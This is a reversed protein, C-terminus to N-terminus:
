WNRVKLLLTIYRKAFITEVLRDFIVIVRGSFRKWSFLKKFVKVFTVQKQNQVFFTQCSAWVVKVHGTSCHQFTSGRPSFWLKKDNGCMIHFEKAVEFSIPLTTLNANMMELPFNQPFFLSFSVTELNEGHKSEWCFVSPLTTVGAEETDLPFNQFFVYNQVISYNKWFPQIIEPLTSFRLIRTWFFMKPSKRELFWNKTKTRPSQAFIKCSNERFAKPLKQLVSMRRDLLLFQSSM